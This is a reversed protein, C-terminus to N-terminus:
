SWAIARMSLSGAFGTIPFTVRDGPLAAGAAYLVPIYHDPTPHSQAGDQTSLARALYKTDAAEAARAVDADFRAAWAPVTDDTASMAHRLNHTVNGSGLVLVGEDRLAGIARAIELHGAGDAQRDISL